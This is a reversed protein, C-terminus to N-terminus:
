LSRAFAEITSPTVSGVLLYRVGAREFGLLTGLATPLESAETGDIKVKQLGQPLNEQSGEGPHPASGELVAIGELGQGHEHAHLSGSTDETDGSGHRSPIKVDQVKANAPPAFDLTSDAVPGYSVETASLEVTPSDSTSSYIAARLPTGHVADWSLEAGGILGGHERPSIRVTYAPQGGLDTPTAPSLIAHKSLRDIGEQVKTLSPPQGAGDDSGGDRPAEHREGWDAPAVLRYLTDTSADYLSLRHGDYLIQTDGKESQLELRARGQSGIWLRGSAGGILPSSSLQSSEGEGGQGALEAGELLHNTFQIRASVGQVAPGALADHVAQALPKPPPVPGGTVALALAAAGIAVAVLVGCLLLLRTLPLRRLVNSM